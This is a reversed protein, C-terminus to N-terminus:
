IRPNQHRVDEQVLDHKKTRGMARAMVKGMPIGSMMSKAAKPKSKNKQRSNIETRLSGAMKVGEADTFICQLCCGSL